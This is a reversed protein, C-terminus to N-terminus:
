LRGALPEAPLSAPASPAAFDLLRAITDRLDKRPVVKDIQGHALQFEATQFDAPVKTVQAQQAVREGAFGIKAGPEALIIDGLSGWSAMVGALSMDTLVVLTLLGAAHQRAIAASTRAMQMLSLLGEQQRAGGGTGSILLTPLGQQTAREVARTIREGVVSGMSGGMFSFDTVSLTLRHGNLVGDGTLVADKLGSRRRHEELKASYDPFELPNLSLLDADRELFTGPDLLLELRERASLRFHYGCKMCVKYNREWERTFLLERCKPCQTFLDEPVPAGGAQAGEPVQPRKRKGFWGNAM